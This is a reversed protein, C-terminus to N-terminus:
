NKTKKMGNNYSKSIKKIQKKMMKM